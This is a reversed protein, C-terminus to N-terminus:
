QLVAKCPVYARVRSRLIAGLQPEHDIGPRDEFVGGLEAQRVDHLVHREVASLLELLLFYYAIQFGHASAETCVQVGVRAEVFGDVFERYWRIRCAQKLFAQVIERIPLMCHREVGRFHLPFPRHHRLFPTNTLTRTRQQTVYLEGYQKSAGRVRLSERDARLLRQAGEPM